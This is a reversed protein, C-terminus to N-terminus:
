TITVKFTRVGTVRETIAVGNHVYTREGIVKVRPYYTGPASPTGTIDGNAASITLGTPLGSASWPTSALLTVDKPLHAELNLTTIAGGSAYNVGAFLEATTKGASAYIVPALCKTIAVKIKTVDDATFTKGPKVVMFPRPTGDGSEDALFFMGPEPVPTDKDELQLDCSGDWAGLIVKQRRVVGISNNTRLLKADQDGAFNDAVYAQGTELITIDFAGHPLVGDAVATNLPM